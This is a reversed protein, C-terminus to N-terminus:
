VNPQADRQIDTTRSCTRSRRLWWSRRRRTWWPRPTTARCSLEAASRSAVTPIRSTTSRRRIRRARRPRRPRIHRSTKHHRGVARGRTTMAGRTPCSRPRNEASRRVRRRESASRQTRIPQPARRTEHRRSKSSHSVPVHQKRRWRVSPRASRRSGVRGAVFSPSSPLLDSRDEERQGKGYREDEGNDTTEARLLLVAIEEELRKEDKQMREYSMAKHKSANAQVKTGDIAVLGLKVLGAEQCLNVTQKFIGALADLHSRRFESIRSHDPHQGGAIVRFAIDEYTAREIRRSSFVGVCYAYLLLAVMMHPSYPKEGRADKVDIARIVPGLDLEGVVDLIFYALHGESLWDHPSPPLLHLQDVNWPKYTKM